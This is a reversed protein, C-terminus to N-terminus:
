VAGVDAAVVGDDDVRAGVVDDVVESRGVAHMHLVLSDAGRDRQVVAVVNADTVMFERELDARPRM